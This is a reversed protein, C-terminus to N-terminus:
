YPLFSRTFIIKDKINIEKFNEYFKKTNRDFVILLGNEKASEMLEKEKTKIWRTNEDIIYDTSKLNPVSFYFYDINM